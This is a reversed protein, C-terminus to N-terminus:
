SARPGLTVVVRHPGPALPERPRWTLVGGAVEAEATVDRTGVRVSVSDAGALSVAVLVQAAPIREGPDPSLILPGPQQADAPVSPALLAAAAALLIRLPRRVM